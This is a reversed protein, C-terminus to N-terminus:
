EKERRDQAAQQERWEILTTMRRWDPNASQAKEASRLTKYYAEELRAVPPIEPWTQRKLPLSPNMMDLWEVFPEYRGQDPFPGLIALDEAGPVRQAEWWERPAYRSAPEWQQLMWGTMDPYRQIWRLERVVRIPKQESIQMERPMEVDVVLQKGMAGPMVVRKVETEESFVMGGQNKLDTGPAWDHWLGGRYQMISDALVIRLNPEGYINLGGLQALFKKTSKPAEGAPLVDDRKFTPTKM